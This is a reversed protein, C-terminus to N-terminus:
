KAQWADQNFPRIPQPNNNPSSSSSSGIVHGSSDMYNTTNSAGNGNYASGVISGNVDRYQVTGNGYNISSGVVSGNADRYNTTTSQSYGLPSLTLTVLAVAALLKKNM